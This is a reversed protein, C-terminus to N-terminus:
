NKVSAKSNGKSGHQNTPNTKNSAGALTTGTETEKEKAFINGYLKKENFTEAEGLANRCEELTIANSLFKYIEHKEIREKTTFTPNFRIKVQNEATVQGFLDFCLQRIVTNNLQNELSSQLDEVVVDEQGGLTDADQRGAGMEGVSTGSSRLSSLVRSKAADVVQIGNQNYDPQIIDMKIHGSMVLDENFGVSNIKATLEDLETQQAKMNNDGVYFITKKELSDLYDQYNSNELERLLSADELATYVVPVGFVHHTEKEYTLHFVNKNTYNKTTEGTDFEWEIVKIGYSTKPTWGKSPLITLSFIKEDVPDIAKHIWLNGFSSYNNFAEQLFIETSSGSNILINELHQQLKKINEKNHSEFYFGTKVAKERFNALVRAIYGDVEKAKVITDVIRDINYNFDSNDLQLPENTQKYIKRVGSIAGVIDEKETKTIVKTAKDSFLTSNIYGKATGKLSPLFRKSFFNM